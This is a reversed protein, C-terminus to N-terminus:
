DDFPLCSPAWVPCALMFSGMCSPCAHLLRYLVPLARLLGYLVPLCSPAWVPRSVLRSWHFFYPKPFTALKAFIQQGIKFKTAVKQRLGHAFAKRRRWIPSTLHFHLTNPGPGTGSPFRSVCAGAVHAGKFTYTLMTQQCPVSPSLGGGADCCFGVQM